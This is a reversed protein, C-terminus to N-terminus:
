HGGTAVPPSEGWRRKIWRVVDEVFPHADPEFELTHHAEPYDIVRNDRTPFSAVFRRTQVNDIIRDQGALLLLTPATV